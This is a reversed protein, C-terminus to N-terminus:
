ALHKILYSYNNCMSQWSFKKACKTDVLIVFVFRASFIPHLGIRFQFPAQENNNRGSIIVIMQRISAFSFGNGDHTQKRQQQKKRETKEM